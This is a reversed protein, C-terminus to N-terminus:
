LDKKIWKLKNPSHITRIEEDSGDFKYWWEDEDEDEDEYKTVTGYLDYYKSYFRDGIVPFIEFGFTQRWTLISNLIFGATFIGLIIKYAILSFGMLCMVMILFTSLAAYRCIFRFIRWFLKIVIMLEEEIGIKKFQLKM